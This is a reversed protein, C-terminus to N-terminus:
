EVSLGKGYLLTVNVRRNEYGPKFHMRDSIHILSSDFLVCRNERYPVRLPKADHVQLFAELRKPDTNYNAFTWHEPVPLDYVVMGGSTPDECADDPTIWFNVNVRAFDAHMRIGQMRQDYKFGWAQLLPHHGIVRPMVKRLEDAAALLVNPSFGQALLAGAYGQKNYTKWVTAEECFRRLVGLAEPSLFSDIVVLRQAFYKEEIAGYDNDGLARQPFPLDPVYHHTCLARKLAQAEAGEPAFTTRLDGTKEYYKTLVRLADRGAGDLRGRRELLDLQEYDHRIRPEPVPWPLDELADGRSESVALSDSFIRAAHELDGRNFCELGWWYMCDGDGRVEALYSEILASLEATDGDASYIAALARIAAVSLSGAGLAARYAAIARTRDDLGSYAAGLEVHIDPSIVGKDALQDFAVIAAYHDGLQNQCRMIQLIASPSGENLLNARDANGLSEHINGNGYSAVSLAMLARYDDPDASLVACAFQYAQRWNGTSVAIEAMITLLFSEGPPTNQLRKTIYAYAEDILGNKQLLLLYIALADYPVGPDNVAARALSLVDSDNRGVLSHALAGTIRLAWEKKWPYTKCVHVSSELDGCVFLCVAAEFADEDSAPQRTRLM